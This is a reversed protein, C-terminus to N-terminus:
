NSNEKDMLRAWTAFSEYDHKLKAADKIISDCHANMKDVPHSANKSDTPNNKATDAKMQKHEQIIAEQDVALKDYKAALESYKSGSNDADANGVAISGTFALFALVPVLIRNRKM